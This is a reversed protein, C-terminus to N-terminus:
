RKLKLKILTQNRKDLIKNRRILVKNMECLQKIMFKDRRCAIQSQKTLVQLKELQKKQVKSAALM